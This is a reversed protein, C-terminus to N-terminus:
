VKDRLREISRRELVKHVHKMWISCQEETCSVKVLCKQNCPCKKIYEVIEEVNHGNYWGILTCIDRATRTPVFYRCGKCYKKLKTADEESLLPKKTEVTKM